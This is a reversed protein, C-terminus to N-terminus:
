CGGEETYGGADEAELGVAAEQEVDEEREQGRDEEVGDTNRWRRYWSSLRHQVRAPIEPPRKLQPRAAYKAPQCSENQCPGQKVAQYPCSSVM